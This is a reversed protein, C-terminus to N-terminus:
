GDLILDVARELATADVPKSLVTSNRLDEPIAAHERIYGSVFVFPVQRALLVRAVPWSLEGGLNVDLLALDLQRVEQALKLADALRAAPGIVSLGLDQLLGEIHLAVLYEDEVLLAAGHRGSTRSAM